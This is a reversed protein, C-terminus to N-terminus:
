KGEIQEAKKIIKDIEEVLSKADLKPLGTIESSAPLYLILHEDVYIRPALKFPKEVHANHKVKVSTFNRIGALVGMASNLLTSSIAFGAIGRLSNYDKNVKIEIDHGKYSGAVFGYGFGGSQFGCGTINAVKRMYADGKKKTKLYWVIVAAVFITFMLGFFIDLLWFLVVAVIILSFGIYSAMREFSM